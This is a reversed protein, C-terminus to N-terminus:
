QKRMNAPKVIVTIKREVLEFILKGLKVIINKNEDNM